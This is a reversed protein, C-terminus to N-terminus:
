IFKYRKKRRRPPTTRFTRHRRQAPLLPYKLFLLKLLLTQTIPQLGRIGHPKTNCFPTVSFYNFLYNKALM